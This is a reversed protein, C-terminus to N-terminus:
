RAVAAEARELRDEDVEFEGDPAGAYGAGPRQLGLVVVGEDRLHLERLTRDALWDDEEVELESIDYEGALDLLSVYDRVDLQAWRRLARVIARSLRRDVWRSRAVLLLVLVGGVLMAVREGTQAGTSNTFSLVSSALVTVIGANGLIMLWLAIRRRVPHNVVQEAETTTFGVGFFASRAQFHAAERSMGTLAFAVTGIRTILLSLSVVVFVTLVAVVPPHYAGGPWRDTAAAQWPVARRTAIQDPAIAERSLLEVALGDAPGM